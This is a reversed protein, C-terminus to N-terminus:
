FAGLYQRVGLLCLLLQSKLSIRKWTFLVKGFDAPNHYPPCDLGMSGLFPVLGKVTGNYICQGDALMYLQHQFNFIHPFPSQWWIFLFVM